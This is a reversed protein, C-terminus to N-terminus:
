SAFGKRKMTPVPEEPGLLPDETQCAANRYSRRQAADGEVMVEGGAAAAALDSSKPETMVLASM